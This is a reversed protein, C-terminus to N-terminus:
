ETSDINSLQWPKEIIKHKPFLQRGKPGFYDKSSHDGIVTGWTWVEGDRTLVVGINDGGATFAVIDKPLDLKHLKVPKYAADPKVTRHESADLAWFSGDKKTLIHYLCGPSSACSRWDTETGVQMPTANLSPDYTQTYFRAENGWSWLTGDSKIALVTFYGFCVDVWNTDPSIRTPVLIKKGNSDGTVSGWFWLSGDSQLGVTQIGGSWIKTWNTSVGVQVANTTGKTSGDGLQGSWNNNGWAWLTGDNKLAFSNVAGAAAQKWDNGPISPVPTPRSIKTGDGLQYNFNGGWAWLTGDTKIALCHSDGVAINMWDTENGIRRLSVTNQINTNKLGLVPWGLREEGWSWLSGDSALIIGDHSYGYAIMPAINGTPLKLRGTQRPPAHRLHSTVMVTSVTALLIVTSAVVTTKMKTWAMVKLAGKILTLTSGSAAFGKTIAVATISKALVAPAAQVSNASIIATLVATSTVVGRKAFFTRLKEVARNVRMKAADESGGLAAGVEKMSKGDFYRLVVAHRDTESLGAMADDLLPAIQPWSDAETEDSLNQMLVEQERRTRRIESRILTVATLRATQYLWGSLIVNKGLQGAKRALIVFVAQTIEEAQHPNRTHRLAVSYVKNVHRTVLEAFAPESGREAFERLLANDDLKHMWELHRWVPFPLLSKQPARCKHRKLAWQLKLM